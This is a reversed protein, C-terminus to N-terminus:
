RNTVELLADHPFGVYSAPLDNWRVNRNVTAAFTSRESMQERLTSRTQRHEERNRSTYGVDRLSWVSCRRWFSDPRVIRYRKPGYESTVVVEDGQRLHAAAILMIM